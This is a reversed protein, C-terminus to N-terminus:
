AAAVARDLSAVALLQQAGDVDVPRLRTCVLGAEVIWSRLTALPNGSASRGELAEYDDIVLLRGGSGLVRAVERLADAPRAEDALACDVIAADFSASPQPLAKLEGQQMVCDSMGRAHLLARARQVEQRSPNMGVIRRAGAGLIAIVDAPAVGFDRLSECPAAGLEAALERAFDEHSRGRGADPAAAVAERRSRQELLVAVRQADAKLVPDQPDIEAVLERAFRGPATDAPVRYYIWHQERFRELVGCDDLLKLHRSVRPQSQGLVQTLESVSFEGRALIAVIRLRTPEAVARLDALLDTFSRTM